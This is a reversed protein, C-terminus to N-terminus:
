REIEIGIFEPLNLIDEISHTDEFFQRSEKLHGSGSLVLQKTAEFTELSLKVKEGPGPDAEMVKRGNWAIFVHVFWEIKDAPQEVEVLRWNDFEYGTEELVERQAAVVLSEDTDDVRGGPFSKLTGRNPQEDDLVIIKDDVICIAATTDPRRLMEFTTTSGDYLQQKWEHVSFIKGGFAYTADEPILVSDEPVLKKM